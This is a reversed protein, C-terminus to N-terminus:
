LLWDLWQRIGLLLGVGKRNLGSSLRSLVGVLLGDLWGLHEVWRM